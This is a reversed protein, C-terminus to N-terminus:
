IPLIPKGGIPSPCSLGQGCPYNREFASRIGEFSLPNEANKAKHKKVIMIHDDEGQEAFHNFDKQLTIAQVDSEDMYGNRSSASKRRTDTLINKNDITYSFKWYCVYKHGVTDGTLGHWNVIPSTFCEYFIISETVETGYIDALEREATDSQKIMEPLQADRVRTVEIQLARRNKSIQKYNAAELAIFMLVIIAVSLLIIRTIQRTVRNRNGNSAASNANQM